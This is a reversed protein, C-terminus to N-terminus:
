PMLPYTILGRRAHAALTVTTTRHTHRDTLDFSVELADTRGSFVTVYEAPLPPWFIQPTKESVAGNRLDLVRRQVATHITPWKEASLARMRMIINILPWSYGSRTAGLTRCKLANMSVKSILCTHVHLMSPPQMHPAVNKLFRHRLPPCFKKPSFHGGKSFFGQSNNCEIM